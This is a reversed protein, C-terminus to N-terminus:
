SRFFFKFNKKENAFLSIEVNPQSKGAFVADGHASIRIIDFSIATIEKNNKDTKGDVEILNPRFNTTSTLESDANNNEFFIYESFAISIALLFM